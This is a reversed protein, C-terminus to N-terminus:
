VSALIQPIVPSVTRKRTDTVMLNLINPAIEAAARLAKDIEEIRKIVEKQKKTLRITAGEKAWKEAKKDDLRLINKEEDYSVFEFLDSDVLVSVYTNFHNVDIKYLRALEKVDLGLKSSMGDSKKEAIYNVYGKAGDTMYAIFEGKDHFVNRSKTLAMRYTSVVQKLRNHERQDIM